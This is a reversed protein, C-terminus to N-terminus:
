RRVQYARTITQEVRNGAKDLHTARLSVHDVGRPHPVLATRSDGSGLLPVPFWFRGDYSAEVTLQKTAAGASGDQRQVSVPVSFVTGGPARNHDDLNPAFRVVALPLRQPATVTASKFTWQVSVSSTLDAVGSRTAKAELKYTAQGAPVTFSGTAVQTNQGVLSGNRFLKTTAGTVNSRAERNAGHDTFLPIEVDIQNGTRTAKTWSWPWSAPFSPGFVGTNWRESGQNGASFMRAGSYLMTEPNDNPAGTFTGVSSLWPTDPVYYETITFPLTGHVLYDKRGIKGPAAAALRAQVKGLEADGMHRILDTPVRDPELWQVHYLYPSGGFGGQGDPKALRAAVYFVFQDAPAASDSPRVLMGDFNVGHTSGGIMRGDVTMRSFIAAVEGPEADARDVTLGIPRGETATLAITRDRDHVVLPEAIYTSLAGTGIQAEMFYNGAPLSVVATGSADTATVVNEREVDNFTVTWNTAPNGNHDTAVLTLQHSAQTTAVPTRAATGGPRVFRTGDAGGATVALDIPGAGAAPFREVVALDVVSERRETAGRMGAILRSESDAGLDPAASGGAATGLPADLWLGAAGGSLAPVDTKPALRSWFQGAKDRAVRVGAADILPLRTVAQGGAARAARADDGATVILPLERASADAYGLDLLRSVNFLRADVSGAAVLTAADSPVVHVEGGRVSRHFRVSERGPAPQVVLEQGAPAGPRSLVRDGTVLTLWPEAHRAGTTSPAAQAGGALVASTVPLVVALALAM